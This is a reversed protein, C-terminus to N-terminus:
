NKITKSKFFIPMFLRPNQKSFNTDCFNTDSFTPIFFNTDSFTPMLFIPIPFLKPNPKTVCQRRVQKVEDKKGEASLSHSGRLPTGQDNIRKWYPLYIYSISACRFCPSLNLLKKCFHWAPMQLMNAVSVIRGASQFICCYHIMKLPVFESITQKISIELLSSTTLAIPAAASSHRRWRELGLPSHSGAVTERSEM